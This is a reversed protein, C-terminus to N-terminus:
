SNAKRLEHHVPIRALVALGLVENVMSRDCERDLAERLFALGVGLLGGLLVGLVANRLVRPRVKVAEEARQLVSTNDALLKGVTVLQSQNQIV